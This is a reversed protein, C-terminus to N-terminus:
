KSFFHFLFQCLEQAKSFMERAKKTQKNTRYQEGLKGYYDMLDSALRYCLDDRNRIIGHDDDKKSEDYYYVDKVNSSQRISSSISESCHDYIIVFIDSTFKQYEIENFCIPFSSFHKGFTKEIYNTDEKDPQKNSILWILIPAISNSTQIPSKKTIYKEHIQRLEGYIQNIQKNRIETKFLGDIDITELRYKEIVDDALRGILEDITTFRTQEINTNDIDLLFIEFNKPLNELSSVCHATTFITVSQKSWQAFDITSEDNIILIYKSALSCLTELVASAFETM